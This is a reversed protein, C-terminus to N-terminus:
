RSSGGLASVRGAMVQAVPRSGEFRECLLKVVATIPTALLMGVIGWLMGWFILSLLIVVPHLDLADGMIKPEIVNGVTLQIAAPIAIALVAALPSVDPSVLVVPLPLLTAVVSGINPIFNLLFALLGFVMALPIGLLALTAGVLVGTVGSIVVKSLLYGKVQTTITAWTGTPAQTGQSGILLFMVLVFVLFSKSLLDVIASTTSALLGGVTSVSNRTLSRLDDGVRERLPEPLAETARALLVNVQEAYRSSQAAMEAVSTSVLAWTGVLLLVAALVTAALALPRPLRLHRTQFDVLMSLGLAILVSLVFPMMIPQLWYLAAGMAIVTLTVLCVTQVREEM